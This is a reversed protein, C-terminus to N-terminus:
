FTFFGCIQRKSPNEQVLVGVSKLSLFMIVTQYLKNFNKQRFRAVETETSESFFVYFSRFSTKVAQVSKMKSKFSLGCFIQISNNNDM